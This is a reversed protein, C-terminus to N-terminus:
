TNNRLYKEGEITIQTKELDLMGDYFEGSGKILKDLRMTDIVEKFEEYSLGVDNEQIDHNGKGLESLVYLVTNLFKKEDM